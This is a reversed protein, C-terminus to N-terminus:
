FIQCFMLFIFIVENPSDTNFGADVKVFEAAPFKPFAEISPRKLSAIPPSSNLKLFAATPVKISKAPFLSLLLISKLNVV